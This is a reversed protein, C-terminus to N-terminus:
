RHAPASGARRPSRGHQAAGAEGILADHIPDALDQLAREGFVNKIRTLPGPRRAFAARDRGAGACWRWRDDGQARRRAVVFGSGSAGSAGAIRQTQDPPVRREFAANARSSPRLGVARLSFGCSVKAARAHMAATDITDIAFRPAAAPAGVRQRV